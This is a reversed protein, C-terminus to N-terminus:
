RCPRGRRGAHGGPRGATAPRHTALRRCAARRHPQGPEDRGCRRRRRITGAPAAPNRRCVAGRLRRPGPTGGRLGGGRGRGRCSCWRGRPGGTGPPRGARADSRTGAPADRGGRGDVRQDPQDRPALRARGTEIDEQTRAVSRAARFRAQAQDKAERIGRPDAATTATALATEHDDYARQAARHGEEAEVAQARARGALECREDALRRADGCPGSPTESAPTKTPAPSTTKAAAAGRGSRTSTRPGASAVPVPVAQEDGGPEIPSRSSVAAAVPVAVAAVSPTQADKPESGDPLGTSRIAAEASAAASARLATLMPDVGSSVPVGQAAAPQNPAVPGSGNVEATPDVLRFAPETVTGPRPALVPTGTPPGNRGDGLPIAARDAPGYRAPDVAAPSDTFADNSLTSARRRPVADPAVTVRVERAPTSRSRLTAILAAGAAIGLILGIALFAIESGTM